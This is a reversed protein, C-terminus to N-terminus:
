AHGHGQIGGVIPTNWASLADWEAPTAHNWEFFSIGGAHANQAARITARIEAGTPFGMGDQYIDFMQGVAEVALHPSHAAARMMSISDAVFQYAQEATYAHHESHWYDQPAVLDWSRAVTSFPYLRGWYTQPAYTSIAMFVDPGLSARLVQGYARVYPEQMNQEVDAMIGDPRDGSPAVYRATQRAIAVDRPLDDLFPYVWAIVAIHARHALPLLAALTDAGYFGPHSGAVEVYLHTVHNQKAAAVLVAPPVTDLISPTCWMGLGSVPALSPRGAGRDLNVHDASIWGSAPANVHYWAMGASDTAWEFVHLRVRSPLIRLLPGLTTPRGRLRAPGDAVGNAHLKMPAHFGTPHPAIPVGSPSSEPRVPTSAVTDARVWADLADWLRVQLWRVGDVTVAGSVRVEQDLDLSSLVAGAPRDRVQVNWYQTWMLTSTLPAGHPATAPPPPRGILGAALLLAACLARVAQYLM